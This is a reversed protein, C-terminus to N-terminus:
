KEPGAQQAQLEAKAELEMRYQALKEEIEEEGLRRPLLPTCRSARRKGPLQAPRIDASPGGWGLLPCLKPSTTRLKWCKSSSWWSRQGREFLPPM